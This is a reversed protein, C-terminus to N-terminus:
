KNEDNEYDKIANKGEETVIYFVKKTSSKHKLLLKFEAMINLNNFTHALSYGLKGTLYYANRNLQPAELLGKLMEYQTQKLEM